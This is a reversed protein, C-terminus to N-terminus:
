LVLDTIFLDNPAYESANNPINANMGASIVLQALGLEGLELVVDAAVYEALANKLVCGSPSVDVAGNGNQKGAWYM